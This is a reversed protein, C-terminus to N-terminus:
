VVRLLLSVCCIVSLRSLVCTDGDLYSSRLNVLLDVFFAADIFHGIITNAVSDDVNFAVTFPLSLATHVVLLTMAVTWETQSCTLQSRDVRRVRWGRRREGCLCLSVAFNM